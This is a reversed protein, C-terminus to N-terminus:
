IILEPYDPFKMSVIKLFNTEHRERFNRQLKKTTRLWSIIEKTEDFDIDYNDMNKNFLINAIDTVIVMYYLDIDTEKMTAMKEPHGTLSSM